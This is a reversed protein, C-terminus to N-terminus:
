LNLKAIKEKASALDDESVLLSLSQLAARDLIEFEGEAYKELELFKKKDPEPFKAVNFLPPRQESSNVPLEQDKPIFVYAYPYTRPPNNISLKLNDLTNKSYNGSYFTVKGSKNKFILRYISINPDYAHQKVEIFAQKKNISDGTGFQNIIKDPIEDWAVGEPSTSITVPLAEKMGQSIAAESRARGEHSIVKGDRNIVLILKGAKQPDFPKLQKARVSVDSAHEQSDTIKKFDEPKIKAEYNGGVLGTKSEKIILKYKGSKKNQKREKIILRMGM